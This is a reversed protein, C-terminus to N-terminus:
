RAVRAPSCKRAALATCGCLVVKRRLTSKKALVRPRAGLPGKAGEGTSPVRREVQLGSLSAKRSRGSRCLVRRSTKLPLDECFDAELHAGLTAGGRMEKGRAQVHPAGNDATESPARRRGSGSLVLTAPDFLGLAGGGAPGAATCTVHGAQTGCQGECRAPPGQEERRVKQAVAEASTMQVTQWSGSRSWPLPKFRPPFLGAKQQLLEEGRSQGRGARGSGRRGGKGTCFSLSLSSGEASRVINDDGACISSM